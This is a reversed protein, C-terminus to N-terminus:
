KLLERIKLETELAKREAESLSVGPNMEPRNHGTANLWADKMVDQREKILKLVAEGNPFANFVNHINGKQMLNNEGLYKLIERSIIWHGTEGPHVGDAALVFTSDITRKEELYKRMPWHIDIVEWASTYRCSILWDSYIDLVNAYAMGKREDFVPPTLHIIIAGSKVVLNHLWNM